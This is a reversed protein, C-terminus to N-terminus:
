RVLLKELMFSLSKIQRNSLDHVKLISVIEADIREKPVGYFERIDPLRKLLATYNLENVANFVTENTEKLLDLCAQYTIRDLELAKIM